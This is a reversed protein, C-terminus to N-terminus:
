MLEVTRDRAPAFRSITMHMNGQMIQTGPPLVIKTGVVLDVLQHGANVVTQSLMDGNIYIVTGVPFSARREVITPLVSGTNSNLIFSHIGNLMFRTGESIHIETPKPLTSKNVPGALLIVRIVPLAPGQFPAAPQVPQAQKHLKDPLSPIQGPLLVHQGPPLVVLHQGPQLVVFQRGTPDVIIQEESGKPMDPIVTPQEFGSEDSKADAIADKVEKGDKETKVEKGTKDEKGDKHGRKTESHSSSM